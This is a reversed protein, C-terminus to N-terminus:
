NRPSDVYSLGPRWSGLHVEYISVPERSREGQGRAALWDGDGWQLRSSYVISATAPPREALNAM